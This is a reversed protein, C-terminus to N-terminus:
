FHNAGTSVEPDKVRIDREIKEIIGGQSEPRRDYEFPVLILVFSTNIPTKQVKFFPSGHLLSRWSLITSKGSERGKVLDFSNM